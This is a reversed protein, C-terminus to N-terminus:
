FKLHYHKLLLQVGMKEKAEPRDSLKEKGMDRKFELFSDLSIATIGVRSNDKRDYYVASPVTKSRDIELMNSKGGEIRAIGSNTTGLDIGYDIKLRAM